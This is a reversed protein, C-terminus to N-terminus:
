VKWHPFTLLKLRYITGLTSLVVVSLIIAYMVIASNLLYRNANWPCTDKRFM